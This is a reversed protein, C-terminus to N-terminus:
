VAAPVTVSPPWRVRTVHGRLSIMSPRPAPATDAVSRPLTAHM